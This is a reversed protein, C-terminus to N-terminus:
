SLQLRNSVLCRLSLQNFQLQVSKSLLLSLDIFPILDNIGHMHLGNFNNNDLQTSIHIPHRRSTPQNQSQTDRQRGTSAQKDSSYCFIAHATWLDTTIIITWPLGCVLTSASM